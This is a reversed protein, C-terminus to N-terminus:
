AAAVSSIVFPLLVYYSFYSPYVLCLKVRLCIINGTLNECRRNYGKIKLREASCFVYVDPLLIYPVCHLSKSFILRIILLLDNTTRHKLKYMCCCTGSLDSTIAVFTGFIRENTVSTEM